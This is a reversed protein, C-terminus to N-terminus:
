DILNYTVAIAGNGTTDPRPTVHVTMAGLAGEPLALLTNSDGGSGRHTVVVKFRRHDAAVVDIEDDSLDRIAFAVRPELHTQLNACSSM